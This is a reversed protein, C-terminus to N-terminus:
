ANSDTNPADASRRRQRLRRAFQVLAAFARREASGFIVAILRRRRNNPRSM